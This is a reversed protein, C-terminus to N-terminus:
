GSFASWLSFTKGRADAVVSLAKGVLEINPKTM